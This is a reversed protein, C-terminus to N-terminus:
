LYTIQPTPFPNAPTPYTPEVYPQNQRAELMAIKLQLLCVAQELNEIKKLLDRKKM